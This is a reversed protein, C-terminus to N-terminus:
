AGWSSGGSRTATTGAFDPGDALRLLRATAYAAGLFYDDNTGAGGFAQIAWDIIRCAMQPAAVKIM